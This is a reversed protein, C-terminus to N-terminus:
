KLAAVLMGSAAFGPLEFGSGHDLAVANLVNDAGVQFQVDSSVAWRVGAHLTAYGPTGGEPIRNDDLNVPDNLRAQRLRFSCWVDVTLDRSM